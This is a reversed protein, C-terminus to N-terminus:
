QIKIACAKSKGGEKSKIQLHNFKKKNVSAIILLCFVRVGLSTDKIKSKEYFFSIMNNVM